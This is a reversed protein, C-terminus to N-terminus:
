TTEEDELRRMLYDIEVKKTLPIVYDKYIKVVVEPKVKNQIHQTFKLTPDVGYTKAKELLRKLIKEEVATNTIAKDIGKIDKNKILKTFKETENRFKAEAVFMGFHIRRSLSQLADIDAMAASGLNEMQDGSGSSIGPVMNDVYVKLVNKNINIEDAYSALVPPYNVKPLFSPQVIEPFFPYEDPAQYRRVQSQIKEHQSLLWDLFSGDFNPIPFVDKKYVSPCTFFQSREIFYFIITDEMRQLAQRINNLDLVTEPKMFDM